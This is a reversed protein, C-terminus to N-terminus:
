SEEPSRGSPWSGAVRTVRLGPNVGNTGADAGARSSPMVAGSHTLSSEALGVCENLSRTTDTASVAARPRPNVRNAQAEVPLRAFETAAWEARAPTGDITKM